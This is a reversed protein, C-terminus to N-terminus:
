PLRPEGPTPQVVLPRSPELPLFGSKLAQEPRRTGCFNSAIDFPLLWLTEIM